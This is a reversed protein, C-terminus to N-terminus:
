LEKEDTSVYEHKEVRSAFAIMVLMLITVFVASSIGILAVVIM